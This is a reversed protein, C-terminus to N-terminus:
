ESGSPDLKHSRIVDLIDYHKVRHHSFFSEIAEQEIDFPELVSEIRELQVPDLRDPPLHVLAM